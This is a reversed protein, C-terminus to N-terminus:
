EERHSNLKARFEELTMSNQQAGVHQMSVHDIAALKFVYYINGGSRIMGIWDRNRVLAITEDSLGYKRSYVEEDTKFAERNAPQTLSMRMKNLPYNKQARVGDFLYTGQLSRALTKDAEIQETISAMENSGKVDPRWDDQLSLQQSVETFSSCLGAARPQREQALVRLWGPTPQVCASIRSANLRRAKVTWDNISCQGSPLQRKTRLGCRFSLSAFLSYGKSFIASDTGRVPTGDSAHVSVDDLAWVNLSAPGFDYGVLAGIAWDNYRNTNIAGGYFASSRDDTVQGVYYAVPGVTWKGITRTATFEAHLIDGSTYGTVTSATNIELFINSTLNWGNKLYSVVLNPQFTWWPSGVNGLGNLGTVTGDPVYIGLGGKVFFGSDGLKWSLEVPAIFTNHMGSPTVNVPNGLDYMVFPAVIVADYSAGLFNWGPVWLLGSAVAAYHAPTADGGVHPAGPGVIQAQYTAFQNFMYLGPPPTAAASGIVIGPKQAAGVYGFEYANATEGAIAVAVTAGVLVMRFTM